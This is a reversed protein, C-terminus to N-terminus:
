FQLQLQMPLLLLLLFLCVPTSRGSTGSNGDQVAGPEEWLQSYETATQELGSTKPTMELITTTEVQLLTSSTPEIVEYLIISTNVSGLKNTAVCTYNGYDTESVNFLTLKSLTGSDEIEIGDLSNYIRRDDRYWEFEAEPVADVQCQLVGRQGLTVGVDRSEFVSPPYNVVLRLTRIDAAIDNAALCEYVGARNRSISPIELYEDDSSVGDGSASPTHVRWSIAPEPKGNALCMLTVNTGENVELDKSFDTIKPPVSIYVM